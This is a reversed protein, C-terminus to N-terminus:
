REKKPLVTLLVKVGLVIILIGFGNFLIYQFPTNIPFGGFLTTLVGFPINIVLALSLTIAALPSAGIVLALLAPLLNVIANAPNTLVLYQHVFVLLMIGWVPTDQYRLTVKETLLLSLIHLVLYVFIVFGIILNADFTTTFTELQVHYSLIGRIMRGGYGLYLSFLLVLHAALTKDKYQLWVATGAVMILPIFVGLFVLIQRTGSARFVIEMLGILVVIILNVSPTFYTKFRKIFAIM